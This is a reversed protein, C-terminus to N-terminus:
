DAWNECALGPVRGFDRLNRTIVVANEELAIAAIRLDMKGINLMMALLANYRRIAAESFTYGPDEDAKRRNERMIEVWEDLFPDGRFIGAMKAWPNGEAKAKEILREAKAREEPTPKPLNGLFVFPESM